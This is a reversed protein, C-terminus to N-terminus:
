LWEDPLGRVVEAIEQKAADCVPLIPRPPLVHCLDLRAAMEHVVRYSTYKRFLDWIPQLDHNIRLAEGMDGSQAARVLQLCPKPMTGGLVSYWASAGAIMAETNKRPLAAGIGQSPSVPPIARNLISGRFGSM